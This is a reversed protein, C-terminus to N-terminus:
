KYTSYFNTASATGEYEYVGGALSGLDAEGKFKFENGQPEVTLPVTYSFRFIKWYIAHYRAQYHRADEQRVISRLRGHHGNVASLWSGEWRGTIGSSPEGQAAVRRWERNFSSCGACCLVAIFTAAIRGVNAKAM